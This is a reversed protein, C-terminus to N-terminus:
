ADGGSHLQDVGVEQEEISKPGSSVDNGVRVQTRQGDLVACFETGGVASDAPLIFDTKM